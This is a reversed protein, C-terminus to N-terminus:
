MMDLTSEGRIMEQSAQNMAERLTSSNMSSMGLRNRLSNNEKM